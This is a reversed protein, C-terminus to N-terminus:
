SACDLFCWQAHDRPQITYRYGRVPTTFTLEYKSSLATPRALNRLAQRAPPGSKREWTTEKIFASTLLSTTPKRRTTPRQETPTAWQWPAGSILSATPIRMSVTLGLESAPFSNISFRHSCTAALFPYLNLKAGYRFAASSSFAFRM